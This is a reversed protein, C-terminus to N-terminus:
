YAKVDATGAWGALNLSEARSKSKPDYFPKEALSSVRTGQYTTTLMDALWSDGTNGILMSVHRDGSYDYSVTHITSRNDWIASTGPTWHWRLQIDTSREFVSRIPRVIPLVYAISQQELGDFEGTFIILSSM